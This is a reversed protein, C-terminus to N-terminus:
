SPRHADPQRVINKAAPPETPAAADRAGLVEACVMCATCAREFDLESIALGLQLLPEQLRGGASRRLREFAELAGMDRQALLGQLSHLQAAMAAADLTAGPVGQRDPLSSPPHANLLREIQQCSHRSAARLSSRLPDMHAPTAGAMLAAETARAAESLQLAGVTAALGKITHLFRMAADRERGDLLAELRDPAAQAEAVFSHLVNEFLHQDGGMRERAGDFDFAPPEAAASPAVALTVVATPGHMARGTQQLLVQVLHPLDFPKGVHENMGAALCEERDSAMANATMAIVPLQTLGLQQRIYHTAAFGDMVPMQLDMLVADFPQLAQSIADVGLQGNDALQVEAGEARLLESAVQQNIQNDEVVLVRMGLLRGPPAHLARKSARVNSRGTRAAHVAEKLLAATVPKVLFAHLMAQEPASRSALLDRGNATVMLLVPANGSAAATHLAAKIHALTEWGDMGPMEWDVCIADFPPQASKHQQALLTLAEPGSAALSCSWGLASAMHGMIALSTPHDDVILVRYPPHSQPSEQALPLSASAVPLTIDFFFTSGRGLESVLELKAGMLDLLRKSISLGLGTGGFRRTTSAEAQSFDEFIRQQNELALGIGTDQVAVRLHVVDACRKLVQLRIVVEGAPTFKVANSSLNILVQQLRMADGVLVPPLQPDLDFLVEIAKGRLNASLIVSLERMLREMEFPQAEVEMKGADMKSFDLIDNLLGLLSKAARESKEAYDLQRSTLETAHLLQLMGLIANMPTRLEHSMNALFQGKTRTAQEANEKARRLDAEDREQQALDKVMGRYFSFFAYTALLVSLAAVAALALHKRQIARLRITLLTQLTDLLATNAANAQEFVAGGAQWLDAAALEQDQMALAHARLRFAEVHAALTADLRTKVMPNYAVIKELYEQYTALDFRLQADWNAYDHRMANREAFGISDAKAALFTSWSRIQGLNQMLTPLVQISLLGLYLTDIDPDLIIGSQDAVHKLFRISEDAVPSFATSRGADDMRTTSATTQKWMRELRLLRDQLAFTDATAALQTYLESFALTAQRASDQYTSGTDFGAAAARTANRALTLQQNLPALSQLMAVGQLEDYTFRQLKLFDVTSSVGLLAIPLFFLLAILLTKAPFGMSRMIRM